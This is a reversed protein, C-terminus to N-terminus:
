NPISNLREGRWFLHAATMSELTRWYCLAAGGILHYLFWFSEKEQPISSLPTYFSKSKEKRFYCYKPPHPSLSQLCGLCLFYLSIVHFTTESLIPVNTLTLFLPRIGEKLLQKLGTHIEKRFLYQKNRLQM